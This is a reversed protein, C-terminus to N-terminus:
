LLDKELMKLLKERYQVERRRSLPLVVDNSLTVFGKSLSRHHYMNILYKRHIRFFGYDGLLKEYDNLSKYDIYKNNDTYLITCKDEASIYMIDKVFILHEQEKDKLILRKVKTQERLYDQVMGEIDKLSIPKLLYRDAKAEYGKVAYEVYSTIFVLVIQPYLEKIKKGLEIGDIDPLEIDVLVFNPLSKDTAKARELGQLLEGATTYSDVKVQHSEGLKSITNKIEEIHENNDDCISFSLNMIRRWDYIKVRVIISCKLELIFAM